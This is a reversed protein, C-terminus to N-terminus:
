MVRVLRSIESQAFSVRRVISLSNLEDDLLMSAEFQSMVFASILELLSLVRSTDSLLRVSRTMAPVSLEFPSRM